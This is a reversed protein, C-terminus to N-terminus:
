SPYIRIISDTEDLTIKQPKKNYSLTYSEKLKHKKTKEIKKKKKTTKKFVKLCLLFIFNHHFYKLTNKQLSVPLYFMLCSGSSRSLETLDALSHWCSLKKSEMSFNFRSSKTIAEWRLQIEVYLDLVWMSRYMLSLRYFPFFLTGTLVILLSQM